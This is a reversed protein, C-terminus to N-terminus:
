AERNLDQFSRRNSAAQATDIQEPAILQAGLEAAEKELTRAVGERRTVIQPSRGGGRPPQPGPVCVSVM